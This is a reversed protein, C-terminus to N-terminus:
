ISGLFEKYVSGPRTELVCGSVTPTRQVYSSKLYGMKFHPPWAALWLPHILSCWHLFLSLFPSIVTLLLWNHLEAFHSAIGMYPLKSAQEDYRVRPHVAKKLNSWSLSFSFCVAAICQWKKFGVSPCWQLFAVHCNQPTTTTLNLENPKIQLINSYQSFVAFLSCHQAFNTLLWLFPKM